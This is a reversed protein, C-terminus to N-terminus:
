KEIPIIKIKLLNPENMAKQTVRTREQDEAARLVMERDESSLVQNIVNQLIKKTPNVKTKASIHKKTEFQLLYGRDSIRIGEYDFGAKRNVDSVYTAIREEIKAMDAKRNKIATKVQKLRDMEAALHNEIEKIELQIDILKDIDNKIPAFVSM